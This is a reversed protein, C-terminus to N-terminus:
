FKKLDVARSCSRDAVYNYMIGIVTLRMPVINYVTFDSFWNSLAVLSIKQLPYFQIESSWSSPELGHCYWENKEM